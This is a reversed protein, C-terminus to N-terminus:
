CYPKFGKARGRTLPLWFGATSPRVCETSAAHVSFSRITASGSVSCGKLLAFRLARQRVRVTSGRRVMFTKPRYECARHPM